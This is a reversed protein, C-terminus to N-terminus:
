NGELEKQLRRLEKRTLKKSRKRPKELKKLRDGSATDDPAVVGSPADGDSTEIGHPAKLDRSEIRPEAGEATEELDEMEGEEDIEIQKGAAADLQALHAETKKFIKELEAPNHLYWFMSEHFIQKTYGYKEVIPAYIRYNDYVGAIDPNSEIYADAQYFESLMSVM